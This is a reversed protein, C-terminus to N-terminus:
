VGQLQKGRVTITKVYDLVTLDPEDRKAKENLEAVEEKCKLCTTKPCTVGDGFKNATMVRGCRACRRVNRYKNM